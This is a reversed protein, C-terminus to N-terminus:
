VRMPIQGVFAVLERTEMATADETWNGIFAPWTSVVMVCDAGETRRSVRGSFVGVVDSGDIREAPDLRDLMEVYDSGTTNYSVGGTGNGQITGVATGFTSASASYSFQV